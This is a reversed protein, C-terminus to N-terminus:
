ERLKDLGAIMGWSALFFVVVLMVFFLDSVKVEVDM